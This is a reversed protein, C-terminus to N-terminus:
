VISPFIPITLGKSKKEKTITLQIQLNEHYKLEELTGQEKRFLKKSEKVVKTLRVMIDM